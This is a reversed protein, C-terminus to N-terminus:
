ATAETAEEVTKKPKKPKPDRLAKTVLPKLEEDELVKESKVLDPKYWVPPHTILLPGAPLLAITFHFGAVFTNAPTYSFTMAILFSFSFTSPLNWACSRTLNSSGM